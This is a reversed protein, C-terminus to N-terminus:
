EDKSYDSGHYWNEIIFYDDDFLQRVSEDEVWAKMARRVKTRIEKKMMKIIFKWAEYRFSQYKGHLAIEDTSCIKRLTMDINYVKIESNKLTPYQLVTLNIIEHSAVGTPNKTCTKTLYPISAKCMEFINLCKSNM